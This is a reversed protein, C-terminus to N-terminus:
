LGLEMQAQTYRAKLERMQEMDMLDVPLPEPPPWSWLGEYAALLSRLNAAMMEVLTFFTQRYVERKGNADKRSSEFSHMTILGDEVYAFREATADQLWWTGDTWVQDLLGLMGLGNVTAFNAQGLLWFKVGPFLQVLAAAFLHRAQRNMDCKVMGGIMVQGFTDAMWRFDPDSGLVLANAIAQRAWKELTGRKFQKQTRTQPIQAALDRGAWGPLHGFSLHAAANKCRVALGERGDYTMRMIHRYIDDPSRCGKAVEMEVATAYAPANDRLWNYDDAQIVATLESFSDGASITVGNKVVVM